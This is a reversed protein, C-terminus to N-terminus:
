HHVIAALAQLSVYNLRLLRYLSSEKEVYIASLHKFTALAHLTLMYMIM